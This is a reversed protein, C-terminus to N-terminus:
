MNENQYHIQYRLWEKQDKKVLDKIIPISNFYSSNQYHQKFHELIEHAQIINDSKLLVNYIKSIMKGSEEIQATFYLNQVKEALKKMFQKQEQIYSDMNNKIALRIIKEAYNIADDYNANLLYNEEVIKMNNIESIIDLKPNRLLTKVEQEESDKGKKQKKKM